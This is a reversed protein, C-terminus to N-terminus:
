DASLSQLIRSIQGSDYPKPIFKSGTPMLKEDTLLASTIVIKIPPWRGRVAHALKLGDMSGKMNIDTFIIRIDNRTELIAIAEDANSGRV